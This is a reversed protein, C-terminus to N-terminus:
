GHDLGQGLPQPKTTNRQLLELLGSIYSGVGLDCAGRAWSARSREDEFEVNGPKERAFLRGSQGIAAAAAGCDDVRRHLEREGLLPADRAHHRVAGIHSDARLAVHHQFLQSRHLSLQKRALIIGERSRMTHTHTNSSWLPGATRALCPATRERRLLSPM